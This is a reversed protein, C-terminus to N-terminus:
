VLAHIAMVDLLGDGKQFFLLSLVVAFEGGIRGVTVAQGAEVGSYITQTGFQRLSSRCVLNLRMM